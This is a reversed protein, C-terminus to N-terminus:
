ERTALQKRILSLSYGKQRLLAIQRLRTKAETSDYLRKNGARRSVKLLGLATYYSITSLTLGVAEALDKSSVMRRSSLNAM